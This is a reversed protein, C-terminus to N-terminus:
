PRPRRAFPLPPQVMPNAAPSRTWPRSSTACTSWSSRRLRAVAADATGDRQVADVLEDLLTRCRQLPEREAESIARGVSRLAEAYGERFDPQWSPGDDLGRALTRVTSRVEAFAQEVRRLLGFWERPERLGRASRRPNM